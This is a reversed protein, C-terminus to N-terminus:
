LRERILQLLAAHCAGNTAVSGRPHDLRPQNYVLEAGDRDTIVGGAERLIVEPACTDWEHESTSANIAADLQGEAIAMFKLSAGMPVVRPALGTAALFASLSPHPALRSVGVRLEDLSPRKSVHVRTGGRAEKLVDDTRWAGGGVSASYLIDAVPVLVAGVVARGDVALGVHVAFQDTRQVFDRTGDLPDIIWVRSRSLRETADPLEESLLYDDPFADRLVRVIAANADRDAATVPTDDAKTEVAIAGRAYHQLIVEGAACAARVAIQLEREYM